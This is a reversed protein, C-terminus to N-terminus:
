REYTDYAKKYFLMIINVMWRPWFKGFMIRDEIERNHNKIFEASTAGDHIRYYTLVKDAYAISGDLESFKLFTDWDINFKLESTFFTKGLLQKNYTVAPCCFTNGMSLVMRKGIRTHALSKIKLPTRLLRRIRSNIDRKGITNNKIPIYDSVFAIPNKYKGITDEFFRVYDENYCDDQHALTVWETDASDYAFNWDDRIDSKGKRVYVPINYKQAITDIYGCPTSTALMVRSKISQALVSKICEELYPSEKYACIVFTHNIM